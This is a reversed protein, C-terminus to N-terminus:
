IDIILCIQVIHIVFSRELNPIPHHMDLEDVIQVLIIDQIFNKKTSIIIVM